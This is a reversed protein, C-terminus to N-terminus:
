VYRGLFLNSLNNYIKVCYATSSVMAVFSSLLYAWIIYQFGVLGLFTGVFVIIMVCFVSIIAAIKVKNVLTLFMANVFFISLFVDGLSAIRLIQLSVLSGRLYVMLEPGELNVLFTLVGSTLAAAILLKNYSRQLVGSVSQAGGITMKASAEALEEYIPSLLVYSVITVGLLIVLAPDAGTHYAANFELPLTGYDAVFPNFIWSLIRDAFIMLFFFTGFIFYPLTEWLQVGLRSRVTKDGVSIPAYFRPANVQATTKSSMIKSRYYLAPISLIAFAILLGLFYRVLLEFEAVTGISAVIGPPVFRTALDITTSPAYLYIAVLATLALTYALVMQGLKRLAFIVLYSARHSAITVSSFITIAVLAIPVGGVFSLSLLVATSVLLAAGVFSDNRRITRKVEGLNNQSYYFSFLRNFAQAPGESILIGLFVGSLFATTIEIPLIRAMWLSVGFLFLVALMAVIPFALALGELFRAASGRAKKSRTSAPIQDPRAPASVFDLFDFIYRAFDTLDKFGYKTVNADEYGLVELFVLVDTVNSINGQIEAVSRAAREAFLWAERSIETHASTDSNMM